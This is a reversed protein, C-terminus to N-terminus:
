ALQPPPGVPSPAPSSEPIPFEVAVMFGDGAASKFSLRGGLQKALARILEFGLNEHPAGACGVGDDQVTLRGLGHGIRALVVQVAGSRDDPFGHKVANTVVESALLGLPHVLRSTWREDPCIVSVPASDTGLPTCVDQFYPRVATMEEPGTWSGCHRRALVSLRRQAAQLAAVAQPDSTSCQRALLAIAIYLTNKARHDVERGLLEALRRGQRAEALEDRLAAIRAELLRASARVRRKLMRETGGPRGPGPAPEGGTMSQELDMWTRQSCTRSAGPTDRAPLIAAM